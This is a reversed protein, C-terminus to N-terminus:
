AVDPIGLQHNVEQRDFHGHVFEWTKSVRPTARTSGSASGREPGVALRNISSGSVVSKSLHM